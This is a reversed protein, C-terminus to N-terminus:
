LESTNIKKNQEEKYKQFAKLEGRPNANHEAREIAYQLQNRISIAQTFTLQIKLVIPKKIM